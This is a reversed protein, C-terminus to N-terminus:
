GINVIDKIELKTSLHPDIFCHCSEPLKLDSKWVVSVKILIM